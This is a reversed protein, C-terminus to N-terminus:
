RRYLTAVGVHRFSGVSVEEYYNGVLARLGPVLYAHLYQKPSIKFSFGKQPDGFSRFDTPIGDGTTRSTSKKGSQSMGTISIEWKFLPNPEGQTQSLSIVISDPPDASGSKYLEGEFVGLFGELEQSKIESTRRLDVFYDSSKVKKLFDEIDDSNRLDKINQEAQARAEDQQVRLVAAQSNAADDVREPHIAPIVQVKGPEQNPSSREAAKSDSAQAPKGGMAYQQNQGAVRKANELAAGNEIREVGGSRRAAETATRDNADLLPQSARGVSLGRRYGFYFAAGLLLAAFIIKQIM